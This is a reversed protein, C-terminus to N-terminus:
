RRILERGRERQRDTETEREIYKRIQILHLQEIVLHLQYRMKSQRSKLILVTVDKRLRVFLESVNSYSVYVM